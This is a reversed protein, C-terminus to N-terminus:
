KNPLINGGMKLAFKGSRDTLPFVLRIIMNISIGHVQQQQQQQLTKTNNIAKSILCRARPILNDLSPLRHPKCNSPPSKAVHLRRTCQHINPDFSAQIRRATKPKTHSFNERFVCFYWFLMKQTKQFSAGSFLFRCQM